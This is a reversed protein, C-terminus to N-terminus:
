LGASGPPPYGPALLPRFPNSNTILKFPDVPPPVYAYAQLETQVTAEWLWEAVRNGVDLAGCACAGVWQDPRGALVSGRLSETYPVSTGNCSNSAGCANIIRASAPCGVKDLADSCVACFSACMDVIGTLSPSASSQAPTGRVPVVLLSSGRGAPLAFPPKAAADLVVEGVRFGASWTGFCGCSGVFSTVNRGASCAINARALAGSGSSSGGSGVASASSAAGVGVPCAVSSLLAACAAEFKACYDIPLPTNPGVYLALAEYGRTVLHDVILEGVYLGPRTFGGCACTGKFSALGSRECADLQRLEAPCRLRNLVTDCVVQYSLCFDVASTPDWPAAGSIASASGGDGATPWVPVIQSPILSRMQSAMLGETLFDSADM